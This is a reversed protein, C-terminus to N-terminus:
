ELWLTHLLAARLNERLLNKIEVWLLVTVTTFLINRLLRFTPKKRRKIKKSM